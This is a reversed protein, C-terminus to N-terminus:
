NLRGDDNANLRQQSQEQKELFQLRRQRIAEKDEPKVAGVSSGIKGSPKVVQPSNNKQEEQQLVVANSNQNQQVRQQQAEFAALRNAAQQRQFGDDEDLGSYIGSSMGQNISGQGNGSGVAQVPGRLLSQEEVNGNNTVRATIKGFKWCYIGFFTAAGM